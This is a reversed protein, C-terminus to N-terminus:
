KSGGRERELEEQFRLYEQNIRHSYYFAFFIVSAIIFFAIMAGLTFLTGPFVPIIMLEPFYIAIFDFLIVIGVHFYVLRLIFKSRWGVYTRYAETGAVANEDTSLTSTDM